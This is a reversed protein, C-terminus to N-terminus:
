WSCTRKTGNIELSNSHLYKANGKLGADSAMRGSSSRWLSVTTARVSVTEPPSSPHTPVKVNDKFYIWVHILEDNTSRPFTLHMINVTAIFMHLM